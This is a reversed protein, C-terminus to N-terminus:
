GVLFGDRTSSVDEEYSSLTEDDPHPLLLRQPFIVSEVRSTSSAQTDLSEVVM